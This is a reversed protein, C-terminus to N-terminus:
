PARGGCGSLLDRIEGIDLESREGVGVVVALRDAGVARRAAKPVHRRAFFAMVVMVVFTTLGAGLMTMAFTIVAFPQWALIPKGAVILPQHLAAYIQLAAALGLGTLGGGITLWWQLNSRRQPQAEHVAPYPAPSTMRIEGIGRERLKRVADAAADPDEFTMILPEDM